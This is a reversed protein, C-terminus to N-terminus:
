HRINIFAYYRKWKRLLGILNTKTTDAYDPQLFHVAELQKHLAERQEATLPKPQKAIREEARTREDNKALRALLWPNPTGDALPEPSPPISPVGKTAPKTAVVEQQEQHGPVSNSDSDSKYDAKGPAGDEREGDNGDVLQAMDELEFGDVVEGDRIKAKKRIEKWLLHNQLRSLREPNHRVQFLLDNITVKPQGRRAALEGAVSIIQITQDRVINEVLTTAEASPNDLEGAVYMMKLIEARYEPEYSNM